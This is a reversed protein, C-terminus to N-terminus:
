SRYQADHAVPQGTENDLTIVQHEPCTRCKELRVFGAPAVDVGNMALYDVTDSETAPAWGHVHKPQKETM